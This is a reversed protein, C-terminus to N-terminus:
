RGGPEQGEGAAIIGLAAGRFADGRAEFNAFQDFSAAAPSLLVVPEPAASAAAGRSAADLATGLDGSIEHAVGHRALTAAFEGAAEGILYAKEIRAFLPGLAEIGGEKGRGGAIWHIADFAVLANAAAEANTAKSDNIYLVRGLRGVEEMRHALGPFSAFGAAFRDPAIGLGILAGAAAVANQVNHRGRLSAIGAIDAIRRPFAETGDILMTHDAWVGGPHRSSHSVPILRVGKPVRERLAATEADDQGLVLADGSTQRAFIGCKAAIYGEMGGHRDLHDPSLNLLVAVDPKLSPTLDLQYSSFEIVYVGPNVPPSLELAARGINGGVESAVGARTLLHGILAATTSKGNTGTVAVLRCGTGAIERIFLETDGIVAVGHAAALKVVPHPQPHTFPIGPSLVVAGTRSWPVGDPAALVAGRGGAAARAAERDDWALVEAGGARLAAIASLGTTGLGFVYARRGAMHRVAIM